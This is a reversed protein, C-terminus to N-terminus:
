VKERPSLINRACQLVDHFPWVLSIFVTLSLFAKMRVCKNWSRHVFSLAEQHKTWLTLSMKSIYFHLPPPFPPPSLVCHLLLAHFLHNTHKPPTWLFIAKYFWSLILLVNLQLVKGTINADAFSYLIWPKQQKIIILKNKRVKFFNSGFM